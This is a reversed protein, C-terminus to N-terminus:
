KMFIIPGPNKGRYIKIILSSMWICLIFTLTRYLKKFIKNICTYTCADNICLSLKQRYIQNSDIQVKKLSGIKYKFILLNKLSRYFFNRYKKTIKFSLLSIPSKLMNCLSSPSPLKNNSQIRITSLYIIYLSCAFAPSHILCKFPHETQSKEQSTSVTYIYAVTIKYM